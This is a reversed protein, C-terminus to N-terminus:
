VELGALQRALMIAEQPNRGFADAGVYHCVREDVPGGGIMVKINDRLGAKKLADVTQKMSAFSTTLLASLGLVHAGTEQLTEIIKEPPVDVGLDHVRFDAGRLMAVVINKGIDHVDGHVTAFIITGAQGTTERMLHPEIQKMARAFIDAAMILETLFYTSNAFLQGIETMGNRMEELITLPPVGEALEASVLASVQQEDLDVLARTLKSENVEGM